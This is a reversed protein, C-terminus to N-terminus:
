KLKSSKLNCGDNLEADMVRQASAITALCHFCGDNLEADM